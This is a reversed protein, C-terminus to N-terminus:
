DIYIVKEFFILDLFHHVDKRLQDLLLKLHILFKDMQHYFSEQLCSFVVEGKLDVFNHLIVTKELVFIQDTAENLQQGHIFFIFLCLQNEEFKFTQFISMDVALQDLHIVM